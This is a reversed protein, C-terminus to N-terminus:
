VPKVVAQTYSWSPVHTDDQDQVGATTLITYCTGTGFTCHFVGSLPCLFQGFCTSNCVLIFKSILADTPKMTFFLEKPIIQLAIEL